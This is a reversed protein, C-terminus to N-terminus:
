LNRLNKELKLFSDYNKGGPYIFLLASTPSLTNYM